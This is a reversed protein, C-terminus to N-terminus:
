KRIVKNLLMTKLRTKSNGSCLITLTSHLVLVDLAEVKSFMTHSREYDKETLVIIAKNGFEDKLCQLKNQVINLDKNQFNHHDCFDVRDVHAAGLKQMALSLSEPCGIGTVCLVVKNQVTNLPVKSFQCQMRFFYCPVMKSLFIPIKKKLVDELVASIYQHKENTILDAHHLVILDAWRLEKLSERLPGRPIMHGNGWLNICNLMVIDLDRSLSWHQMGDDLIIVGIENGLKNAFTDCDKFLCVNGTSDSKRNCKMVGYQQLFSAAINGRNPGSGIKIATDILHRQLMRTEDGGAYGRILILPSIGAEVFLLALFETMPTKGNGGWTLNGVSIVPVALRTPKFIGWTYLKERFKVAFAYLHSAASLFPCLCRHVPSLASVHDDATYAIRVVIRKLGEM